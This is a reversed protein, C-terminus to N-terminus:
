PSQRHDPTPPHGHDLIYEIDKLLAHSAGPEYVLARVACAIAGLYCTPDDPLTLYRFARLANTLSVAVRKADRTEPHNLADRDGFVVAKLENAEKRLELFGDTPMLPRGHGLQDLMGQMRDSEALESVQAARLAAYEAMDRNLEIPYPPGILRPGLDIVNPEGPNRAFIAFAGPFSAPLLPEEAPTVAFGSSMVDDFPGYLDIGTYQEVMRLATEVRDAGAALEAALGALEAPLEPPPTDWERVDVVCKIEGHEACGFRVSLNVNWFAVAARGHRSAQALVLDTTGQYGNVELAIVGGVAPDTLLSASVGTMRGRLVQDARMRRRRNAGFATLVADTDTSTAVTVCGAEALASMRTLWIHPEETM